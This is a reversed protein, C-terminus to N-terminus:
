KGMGAAGLAAVPVHVFTRLLRETVHSGPLRLRHVPESTEAGAQDGHQLAPEGPLDGLRLRHHPPAEGVDVVFHEEAM